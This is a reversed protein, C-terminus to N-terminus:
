LFSNTVKINNPENLLVHTYLDKDLLMDDTPYKARKEYREKYIFKIHYQHIAYPYDIPIVNMNKREVRLIFDNDGYDIGWGYREDFGGLELIDRRMIATCFNLKLNRHISHQYWEIGKIEQKLLEPYKLKSIFETEEKSINLTAYALYSNERIRNSIDTLLDGYLICEAGLLVIVDGTAMAIGKNLPIVPCRWWKEEPHFYHIKFDLEPFSKPIDFVYNEHDSADDIIIIEIDKKNISSEKISNITKELLNKRNYHTIVISIKM